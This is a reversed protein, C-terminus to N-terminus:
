IIGLARMNKIKKDILAPTAVDRRHRLGPLNLGSITREVAAEAEALEPRIALVAAFRSGTPRCGRDTKEAGAYVLSSGERVFISDDFVVEVPPDHREPYGAPVLYKCASASPDFEVKEPLGCVMGMFVQVPDTKLLAMANISEPDGLRANIEVLKPGSRTLMFQGYVIGHYRVGTDNQVGQLLRDLIKLSEQRAAAPVFPMLGDPNSYSGMGGTMPGTDGEYAYKADQILPMAAIKVGDFFVMQSYEEGIMREELLVRGDHAAVDAAYDVAEARTALQTGMVRVGKGATLGLPKVAVEGLADLAAEIEARNSCVRLGPNAEPAHRATTERMFTKDGELRALTKRPGVCPIGKAAMADAAAYMLPEEPGIIALDARLEWAYAAMAEADRMSGNKYGKSLELLGPNLSSMYAYIEPSPNSRSLAKAIAHERGGQGILLIKM